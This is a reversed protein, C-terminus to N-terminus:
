CPSFLHFCCSPTHTGMATRHPCQRQRHKQTCSLFTHTQVSFFHCLQHGFCTSVAGCFSLLHTPLPLLCLLQLPTGPVPHVHSPSFNGTSSLQAAPFSPTLPDQSFLLAASPQWLLYIKPLRKKESSKTTTQLARWCIFSHASPVLLQLPLRTPHFFNPEQDAGKDEGQHQVFLHSVM